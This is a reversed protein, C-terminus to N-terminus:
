PPMGPAAKRSDHFRKAQLACGIAMAVFGLMGALSRLDDAPPETDFAIWTVMMGALFLAAAPPSVSARVANMRRAM